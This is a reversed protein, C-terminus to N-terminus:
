HWQEDVTGTKTDHRVLSDPNVYSQVHLVTSWWYRRCPELHALCTDKWLPGSGLYEVLTAYILVVIALFPTIRLYRYLYYFFINFKGNKTVNQLFGYSVLFGSIM